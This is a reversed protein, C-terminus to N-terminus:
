DSGYIRDSYADNLAAEHVKEDHKSQLMEETKLVEKVATYILIYPVNLKQALEKLAPNPM